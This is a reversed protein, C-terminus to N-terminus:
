SVTNNSLSINRLQQACKSCFMTQAMDKAAPLTVTEAITHRKKGQATKILHQCVESSGTTTSVFSRQQIRIEDLKRRFYEKPKNKMESRERELHRKLKNPEMSGAALM